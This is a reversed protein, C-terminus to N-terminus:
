KRSFLRKFVGGNDDNGSASANEGNKSMAKAESFQQIVYDTLKLLAMGIPQKQGAGSIIPVGQDAAANAIAEDAPITMIIPRKLIKSIDKVSIGAKVSGRNIILWVKDTAYELSESLDFFRSVNKLSPLSQQTVLLIRDAGDLLSLTIDNLNSSTDIIVYDYIQRLMTVTAKMNEETIMDAMEPRPPALLIHAGSQHVQVVTGILEPDLENMRQVIDTINTMNKMNLMVAVDGFQLSADVLVVRYNNKALSVALNIAVTTCGSGGKPSFVALINGDSVATGVDAGAMEVAGARLAAKPAVAPRKDHVRRIATILEDGGFPKTLFDRAGALMARRLYDSDSQVSMIIIQSRPVLESITQSAGIGDVGPMNIDMLIIDPEHAKAMEIAQEGTGAQGIVEVDPEFQLLKRVNERTEPLDDVILVRINESM